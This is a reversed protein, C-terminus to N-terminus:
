DGLTSRESPVKDCSILHSLKILQSAVFMGHIVQIEYDIPVSSLMENVDLSMGWLGDKYVM